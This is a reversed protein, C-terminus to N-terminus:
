WIQSLFVIGIAITNCVTCQVILNHIIHITYVTQVIYVCQVRYQSYQLSFAPEYKARAQEGPDAGAGVNKLSRLISNSSHAWTKKRTEWNKHTMGSSICTQPEIAAASSHPRPRLIFWRLLVPKNVQKCYVYVNYLIYVWIYNDHANASHPALM